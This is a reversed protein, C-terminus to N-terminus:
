WCGLLRMPCFREWGLSITRHTRGGGPFILFPLFRTLITGAVVALITVVSQVTTM